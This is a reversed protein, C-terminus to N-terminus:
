GCKERMEKALKEYQSVKNESSSKITEIDASYVNVDHMLNARDNDSKARVMKLFNNERELERLKVEMEFIRLEYEKMMKTDHEVNERSLRKNDEGVKKNKLREEEL